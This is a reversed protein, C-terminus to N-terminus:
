LPSQVNKKNKKSIHGVISASQNNKREEYIVVGLYRGFRNVAKKMEKQEDLTRIKSPILRKELLYQVHAKKFAEKKRPTIKQRTNKDATRDVQVSKTIFVDPDWIYYCLERIFQYSSKAKLAKKWKRFPVSIGYSIHFKNEKITDGNNIDRSEETWKLFPKMKEGPENNYDDTDYECIDVKKVYKQKPPPRKLLKIVDFAPAGSDSTSAQLNEIDNDQKDSDDIDKFPSEHSHTRDPSVNEKDSGQLYHFLQANLKNRLARNKLKKIDRSDSVKKLSKIPSCDTSAESHIRPLCSKKLSRRNSTVNSAQSSASTVSNQILTPPTKGPSEYNIHERHIRPLCSKKLSRSTVTSAQSFTSAARLSNKESLTALAKMPSDNSGTKNEEM